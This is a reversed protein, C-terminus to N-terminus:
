FTFNSTISAAQPAQAELPSGAAPKFSNDHKRAKLAEPGRQSPLPIRPGGKSLLLKSLWQGGAHCLQDHPSPSALLGM